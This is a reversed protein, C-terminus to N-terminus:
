YDWDYEDIAAHPDICEELESIYGEIHEEIMDPDAEKDLEVYFHGKFECRILM